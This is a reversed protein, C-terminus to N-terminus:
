PLYRIDDSGRSLGTRALELIEYDELLNILADLKSQDGTLMVTLSERGVDVITARFIDAIASVAQRQGSNAKVKVLILERFVSNGPKLEKIDRVDELKRLQKEIQDLIEQDGVSVVTMRSYREDATVGVTLSEINYGRRSFLGAVRSLVGSTNDVLLSLVIREM